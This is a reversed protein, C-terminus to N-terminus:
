RSSIDFGRTCEGVAVTMKQALGVPRVVHVLVFPCEAAFGALHAAGHRGEHLARDRGSRAGRQEARSASPARQAACALGLGLLLEVPNM